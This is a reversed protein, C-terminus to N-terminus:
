ARRRPVGRRGRADRHALGRRGRISERERVPRDSGRDAIDDRRCRRRTDSLCAAIHGHGEAPLGPRSLHDGQRTAQPAPAGARGGRPRPPCQTTNVGNVLVRTLGSPLDWYSASAQECYASCPLLLDFARLAKRYIPYLRSDRGGRFYYNDYSLMTLAGLGRSLLAGEPESHFHLVDADRYSRRIEALARIQYELLGGGRTRHVHASIAFRSATSRPADTRRVRHSCWWTTAAHRSRRHSSPWVDSSRAASCQSCRPGAERHQSPRDEHSPPRRPWRRAAKFPRSRQTAPRGHQVAAGARRLRPGSGAVISQLDGGQLERLGDLLGRVGQWERNLVRDGFLLLMLRAFGVHGSVTAPFNKRYLYARNLVVLRDQARRDMSRTGLARHDVIAEPVYRIRGRRSLRYAFDDDEGLAYGALREDFRTEAAIARRASMLTGPMYEVDRAVDVDVIPRRFGFATM